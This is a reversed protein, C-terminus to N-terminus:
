PQKAWADRPVVTFPCVTLRTIGARLCNAPETGLGDCHRATMQIDAELHHDGPPLPPLKALFLVTPWDPGHVPFFDRITRVDMIDEAAFRFSHESKTGPDVVYTMSRVKSLFDQLPTSASPTYDAPVAAWYTNMFWSGPTGMPVYFEGAEVVNCADPEFLQQSIGLLENADVGEPSVCHHEGSSGAPNFSKDGTGPLGGTAGWAAGATLTTSALLATVLCIGFVTQSRGAGSGTRTARVVAAYERHRPSAAAASADRIRRRSFLRTIIQQMALGGLVPLVLLADDTGAGVATSAGLL